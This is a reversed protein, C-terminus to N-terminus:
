IYIILLISYLGVYCVCHGLRQNKLRKQDVAQGVWQENPPSHGICGTSRHGTFSLNRAGLPKEKCSSGLPQLVMKVMFSLHLPERAWFVTTKHRLIDQSFVKGRQFISPYFVDRMMRPHHLRTLSPRLFWWTAVDMYWWRRFPDAWCTM